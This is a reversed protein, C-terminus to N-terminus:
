LSRPAPPHRRTRSGFREIIDSISLRGPGTRAMRLTPSILALQSARLQGKLLFSYLIRLDTEAIELSRRSAPDGPSACATSVTGAAWAHLEVRDISIDRGLRARGQHITVWKVITPLGLYVMFLVVGITGLLGGLVVLLLRGRRM